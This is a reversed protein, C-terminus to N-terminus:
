QKFGSVPGDNKHGSKRGMCHTLLFTQVLNYYCVAYEYQELEEGAITAATNSDTYM